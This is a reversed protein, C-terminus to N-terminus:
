GTQILTSERTRGARRWGRPDNRDSRLRIYPLRDIMKVEFAGSHLARHHATCLFVGNDVDTNGGWSWLVVHHVPCASVPVRCGPAICRDGDRAAIARRQARTHSRERRGMALPELGEGLITVTFGSDCVMEQIASIPVPEDIGDIRGTRAAAFMPDYQLDKLTVTANVSALTRLGAPATSSARAGASLVGMLIDFRRREPTRPDVITEVLEGNEGAVLQTGRAADEASLFRPTAGLMTSDALISDLLASSIPDAKLRYEKIGNHERAVTLGTKSLIADYRPEIGDADLRDRWARGADWVLDASAERALEVLSREAAELNTFSADSGGRAQKLCTAIALASDIGLAGEVMSAAVLEREPPWAEGSIGHRARIALGVRIRRHADAQSTRTLQELFHVPRRHGHKFSLGDGRLEFRSREAIEGADLARSTDLLRGAAEDLTTLRILEDDTLQTRDVRALTALLDISQQVLDLTESM